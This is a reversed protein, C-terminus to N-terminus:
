EGAQNDEAHIWDFAKALAKEAQPLQSANISSSSHWKDDDKYRQELTVSYRQGFKSDNAWIAANIAGIKVTHVPKKSDQTHEPKREQYQKNM